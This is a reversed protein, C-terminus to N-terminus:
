TPPTAGVEACPAHAADRRVRRRARGLAEIDAVRSMGAPAATGAACRPVRGRGCGAARVGVRVEQNLQEAFRQLQQPHLDAVNM